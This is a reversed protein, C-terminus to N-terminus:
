IKIGAIAAKFGENIYFNMLPLIIPRIRWAGKRVANIKGWQAKNASDKRIIYDVIQSEQWGPDIKNFAYITAYLSTNDISKTFAGANKQGKGVQQRLVRVADGLQALRVKGGDPRRMSFEVQVSGFLQPALSKNRGQQEIFKSFPGTMGRKRRIDGKRRRKGDAGPQLTNARFKAFKKDSALRQTMLGTLGHYYDLLSDNGSKKAALRKQKMWSESLATWSTYEKIFSPPQAEVGDSFNGEGYLGVVETSLDQFFNGYEMRIRDVIRQTGNELRSVQEAMLNAALDRQAELLTERLTSM